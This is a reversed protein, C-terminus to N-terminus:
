VLFGLWVVGFGTVSILFFLGENHSGVGGRGSGCEVVAILVGNM